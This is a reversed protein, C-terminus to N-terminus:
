QKDNNKQPVPNEQFRAISETVTLTGKATLKGNEKVIKVNNEM